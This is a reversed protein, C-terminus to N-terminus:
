RTYAAFPGTAWTIRSLEKQGAASPHFCDFPSVMSGTFDYDFTANSYSYYHHPDNAEYEAALRQLIGNFALIRNRTYQRDAESNAPSLMTACPFWDFLTTAWLTTCDLFGLSTLQSGLQWLQYIDVIGLLYVTSGAALGNRLNELGARVNAEFEADTPIEAFSGQCADNHGMFIPVYNATHAVAQATQAPIDYSDAGSLGEMYNARGSSGFNASIRQNHSYVNTRGLLWEWYGYYGNAYSAWHNPTIPSFPNWAEANIAETISDGVSALRKPAVRPDKAAAAASVLLAVVASTVGLIAGSRM